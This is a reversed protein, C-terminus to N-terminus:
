AVKSVQDDGKVLGMAFELEQDAADLEQEGVLRTINLKEVQNVSDCPQVNICEIAYDSL